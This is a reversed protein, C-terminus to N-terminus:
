KAQVKIDGFVLSISLHLKKEAQAFDPSYYNVQPFLGSRKQDFVKIDGAVGSSRLHLAIHQPLSVKVDGFVGSLYLTREGPPFDMQTADVITNGFVTNVQGGRFDRTTVNLKVDGFVNSQLIRDASAEATENYREAEPIEESPVEQWQQEAAQSDHMFRNRERVKVILYVGVVVLLLPWFNELLYDMYVIRLNDLLLLIGIIILVAGWFFAGQNRKQVTYVSM